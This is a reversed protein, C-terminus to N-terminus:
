RKKNIIRSSKKEYTINVKNEKKTKTRGSDVAADDFFRTKDLSNDETNENTEYRINNMVNGNNSVVTSNERPNHVMDKDESDVKYYQYRDRNNYKRTNSSNSSQPHSQKINPLNGNPQHLREKRMFSNTHRSPEEQHTNNSTTHLLPEFEILIKKPLRMSEDIGIRQKAVISPLNDETREIPSISNAKSRNSYKPQNDYEYYNNYEQDQFSKDRRTQNTPGTQHYNPQYDMEQTRHLTRIPKFGTPHYEEEKPKLTKLADISNKLKNQNSDIDEQMKSLKETMMSVKGELKVNEENLKTKEEEFKERMKKEKELNSELDSIKNRILNLEEMNLSPKNKEKDREDEIRFLKNVYDSKEREQQQLKMNLDNERNEMNELRVNAKGLLELTKDLESKIQNMEEKRKELKKQLYINNDETQAIVEAYKKSFKIFQKIVNNFTIESIRDVLKSIDIDYTYTINSFSSTFFDALNLKMEDKDFGYVQEQEKDQNM